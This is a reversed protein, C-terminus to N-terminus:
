LGRWEPPLLAEKIGLYGALTGDELRVPIAVTNKLIGRPSFGVGLKTAVEPEFGLALVAPHDAQLYDLPKFGGHSKVEPKEEVPVTVSTIWEAAEKAPINKVFEVLKIVDGGVEKAFSYFVKKSPTIVLSRQDGEGSPCPGRLQNNHPTLGLGLRVAVTEIPYTNKIEDFDLYSM